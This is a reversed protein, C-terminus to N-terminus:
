VTKCQIAWLEHSALIELFLAHSNGQGFLEVKESRHEKAKIISSQIDKQILSHIISKAKVRNLQRNGIDISTVGYLPGRSCWCQQQWYHM